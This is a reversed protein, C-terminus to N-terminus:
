VMQTALTEYLTTSGDLGYTYPVLPIEIIEVQVDKPVMPSAHYINIEIPREMQPVSAM